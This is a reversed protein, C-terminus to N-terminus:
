IHLFYLVQSALGPTKWKVKILCRLAEIELGNEKLIDKVNIAQESFVQSM